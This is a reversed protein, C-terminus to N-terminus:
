TQKLKMVKTELIQLVKEVNEIIEYDKFRVINVAHANLYRTRAEDDEKSTERNHSAGDVEIGLKLEPCYFDIVYKEVSYQRRFKLDLFQSGKLKQWLVQEGVTSNNRLEKRFEKYKTQNFLKM